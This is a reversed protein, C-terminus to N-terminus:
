LDINIRERFEIDEIAQRLLIRADIYTNSVKLKNVLLNQQAVIHVDFFWYIGMLPNIFNALPEMPAYDGEENYVRADANHYLSYDGFEGTVAPIIKSHIHSKRKDGKWAERCCNSYYDFAPMDKTLSCSGIFGGAQIIRAISELVYHHCMKEDTETGFGVCSLLKVPLDITSAASLSIFDELITGADREDGRMLSDVGGDVLILADIDNKKILDDYARRVSRVGERGITYMGPITVEPQDEEISERCVFGGNQGSYNALVINNFKMEGNARRMKLEHEIPLGGFVDFGGGMGVILINKSDKLHKIIPINFDM